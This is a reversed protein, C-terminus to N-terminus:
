DDRSERDRRVSPGRVWWCVMNINDCADGAGGAGNM